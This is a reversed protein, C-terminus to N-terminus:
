GQFNPNVTKCRVEEEKIDLLELNTIKNKTLLVAAKESIYFGITRPPIFFDFNGNPVVRYGKYHKVLPGKEVYRYEIVKSQSYDEPFCSGIVSFGHYGSIEQGNKELLVIPYTKWGTIQNDELLKKFRDSILFFSPHGTDVLDTLKKKGMSHKFIVPFSIHQYNGRTLSEIQNLTLGQPFAAFNSTKPDSSFSFIKSMDSIYRKLEM